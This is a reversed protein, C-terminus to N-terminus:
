PSTSGWSLLLRQTAGSPTREPLRPCRDRLWWARAHVIADDPAGTRQPFAEVYARLAPLYAENQRLALRHGYDGWLQDRQSGRLASLDLDPPRGTLPDLRRGSATTADVVLLGDELLPEPAFLAWGQGLRLRETLARFLAPNPVPGGFWAELRARPAPMDIAGRHAAAALMAVALSERAFAQARAVAGTTPPMPPEGTAPPLELWRAGTARALWDWDHRSVFSLCLVGAVWSFPGLTLAAGFAFHLLMGVVVLSRRAAISVRPICVCAALVACALEAVLVTTTLAALVGNPLAERMWVAFPTAMRDVHLVAFVASGDRWASGTKHVVNFFYMAFAQAVLCIGVVSEHPAAREGRTRPSRRGDVAFWDGLPLLLTWALVLNELTYGTNEVLLTRGNLGTFLVFAGVQALKTRYGVALALAAVACAAWYVWTSLPGSFALALSLQGMRDAEELATWSPALGADSYFAEWSPTRRLLDGLLVAGLAIRLAGLTRKDFARVPQPPSPPRTATTTM